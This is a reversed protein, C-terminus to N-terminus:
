KGDRATPRAAAARPAAQRGKGRGAVPGSPPAKAARKDAVPWTSTALAKAIKEFKKM